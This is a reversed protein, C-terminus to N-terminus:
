QMVFQHFYVGVVVGHYLEELTSELTAKAAERGGPASLQAMTEDGLVGISADLAKAYGKTPDDSSSKDEGGKAPEDALELALGVQLLHGDALNLTIPDLVVVPGAKVTTTTEESAGAPTSSAGGLVRTAAVLGLVALLGALAVTRRKGAPAAAEAADAPATTGKETNPDTSARKKLM